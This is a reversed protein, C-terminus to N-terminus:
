ASLSLLPTSFSDAMSESLIVAIIQYIFTVFNCTESFCSIARQSLGQRTLPLQFIAENNQRQILHIHDYQSTPSNPLRRLATEPNVIDYFMLSLLDEFLRRGSFLRERPFLAGELGLALIQFLRRQPYLPPHSLLSNLWYHQFYRQVHKESPMM